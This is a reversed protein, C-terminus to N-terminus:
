LITCELLLRHLRKSDPHADIMPLLREVQEVTFEMREPLRHIYYALSNQMDALIMFVEPTIKENVLTIRDVSELVAKVVFDVNDIHKLLARNMNLLVNRITDNPQPINEIRIHGKNILKMALSELEDESMEDINDAVVVRDTRKLEAIEAYKLVLETYLDSSIARNAAVITKPSTDVAIRILDDTHNVIDCLNWGSLKVAEIQLEYSPNRITGLSNPYQQIFALNAVDNPSTLKNYLYKNSYFANKYMGLTADEFNLVSAPEVLAIITLIDSHDKVNLLWPLEKNEPVLSVFDSIAVTGTHKSRYETVEEGVILKQLVDVDEVYEIIMGEGKVSIVKKIRAKGIRIKDILSFENTDIM